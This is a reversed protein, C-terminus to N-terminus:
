SNGEEFEFWFVVPSETAEVMGFDEAIRFASSDRRLRNVQEAIEARFEEIGLVNKRRNCRPCAPHMNEETDHGARPTKVGRYIPVIHDVHFTKGLECGCYACKGGFKSKIRDRRALSSM